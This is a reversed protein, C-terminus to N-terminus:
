TLCIIDYDFNLCKLNTTVETGNTNFIEVDLHFSKHKQTLNNITGEM